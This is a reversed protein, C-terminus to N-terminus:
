REPPLPYIPPTGPPPKPWHRALSKLLLEGDNRSVQAFIYDATFEHRELVAVGAFLEEGRTFIGSRVDGSALEYWVFLFPGSM